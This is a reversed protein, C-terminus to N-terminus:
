NTFLPIIVAENKLLNYVEFISFRNEFLTVYNEFYTVYNESNPM